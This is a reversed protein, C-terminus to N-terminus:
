HGTPKGHAPVPSLVPVDTCVEFALSEGELECAAITDGEGGKVNRWSVPGKALGVDALLERESATIDIERENTVTTISDSFVLKFM